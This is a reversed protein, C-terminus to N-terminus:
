KKYDTIVFLTDTNKVDFFQQVQAAQFPKLDNKDKSTILGVLLNKPFIGELASTVLVDGETIEADFSVLDLYLSQNSIGKVAGYIPSKEKENKQIKVDVVSALNSILMVKSFNNYVQHVRGYLVKENSIVPMNQLIGDKAGKDILVFDGGLDLGVVHAMALTLNNEKAIQVAGSVLYNQRLSDQLLAIQSLLYLNEQRLIMNEKKANESPLFSTAFSFAANGSKWFQQSIPRSIVYFYNRVQVQFINLFGIIFILALTSIIIRRLLFNQKRIYINM